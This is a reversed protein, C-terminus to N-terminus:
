REDEAMWAKIIEAVQDPKETAYKKIEKEIHTSENEEEFNIPQLPEKPEVEDDILMDIGEIPEEEEKKKKRRIRFAIIAGIVGLVLIGLAGLGVYFEFREKREKAEAERKAKELDANADLGTFKLGEVTIIDGRNEDYSIAGAVLSNIKDKDVPSLNEDNITVSASIKKVKGPAGVTKQEIKGVEYNRTTKEHTSSSNGDQNNYTNSMNNDVPGASVKGDKSNDTSKEIEESRVVNNPDWITSTKESADFDLDVNVAAKVGEGYKPTLINMIKKVYEKELNKKYKNQKDTVSTLDKGDEENFLDDTLDTTKGNVVGIVKVNEKKLNKVSGTILSIIAKVQDKSISKGENFEIKVSAQANEAQKFFNGEQPMVLLVKADKVEPLSKINKALEGELAIKYNLEREKDTMGFKDSNELIEYGKSGSTLQPALELRLESVKDEPVKISSNDVKYEVKKENLKTMVTQADNPDMDKYLVAYKTTNLFVILYIVGTIIGLGLVSFAIKKGRTLGKFKDILNRFKEKIKDM